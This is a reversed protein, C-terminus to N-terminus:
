PHLYKTYNSQSVMEADSFKDGVSIPHSANKWEGSDMLLWSGPCHSHITTDRVAYSYLNDYGEEKVKYMQYRM